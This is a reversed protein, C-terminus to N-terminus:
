KTLTKKMRKRSKKRGGMCEQIKEVTEDRSGDNVLVVETEYKLDGLVLMLQKMLFDQIGAEENYVPVVVSIVKRM